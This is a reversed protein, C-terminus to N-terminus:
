AIPRSSNNSRRSKSGVYARITTGDEIMAVSRGAAKGVGLMSLDRYRCFIEIARNVSKGDYVTGVDDVRVEYKM